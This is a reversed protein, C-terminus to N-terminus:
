VPQIQGDQFFKSNEAGDADTWKVLYQIEGTTQDVSFSDVVGTIPPAVVQVVATGKAIAM